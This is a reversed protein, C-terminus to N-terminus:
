GAWRSGIGPPAPSFSKGKIKKHALLVRAYYLVSGLPEYLKPRKVAAPDYATLKPRDALEFFVPKDGAKAPRCFFFHRNVDADTLFAVVRRDRDIGVPVMKRHKGKAPKMAAYLKGSRTVFYYDDGQVLVQFPEQFGVDVTEERSWRGGRWEKKKADWSAKYAYVTLSWKPNERQDDSLDIGYGALFETKGAPTVRGRVNTLVFQRVRHRGAPLTDYWFIGHFDVNKALERVLGAAVPFAFSDELPIGVKAGPATVLKGHLFDPLEYRLLAESAHYIEGAGAGTFVWSVLYARHGIQWRVPLCNEWSCALKKTRSDPALPVVWAFVGFGEGRFTALVNNSIVVGKLPEQWV